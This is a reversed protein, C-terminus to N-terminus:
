SNTQSSLVLHPSLLHLHLHLHLHLSSAPISLGSEPLAGTAQVVFAAKAEVRGQCGGSLLPAIEGLIESLVFWVVPLTSKCRVMSGGADCDAIGFGDAIGVRVERKGRRAVGAGDVEVAAGLWVKFFAAEIALTRCLWGGM